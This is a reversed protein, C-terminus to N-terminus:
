RGWMRACGAMQLPLPQALRSAAEKCTSVDARGGGLGVHGAAALIRAHHGAAAHSLAADLAAQLVSHHPASLRHMGARTGRELAVLQLHTRADAALQAM